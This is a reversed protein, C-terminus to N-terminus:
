STSEQERAMERLYMQDAEDEIIVRERPTLTPDMYNLRQLNRKQINVCKKYKQKRSNCFTGREKWTGNRLCSNYEWYLDACNGHAASDLDGDNLKRSIASSVADREEKIIRQLYEREEQNQPPGNLPYYPNEWVEDAVKIGKEAQPQKPASPNGTADVQQPVSPTSAPVSRLGLMSITRDWISPSGSTDAM